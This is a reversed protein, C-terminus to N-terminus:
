RRSRTCPRCKASSTPWRRRGHASRDGAPDAAQPSRSPPAMADGAGRPGLVVVRRRAPVGARGASRRRHAFRRESRLWAADPGHRRRVRHHRVRDGPGRRRVWPTPAARALRPRDADDAGPLPRAVGRRARRALRGDPSRGSVTRACSARCSGSSRSQRRPLAWPATSVRHPWPTVSGTRGAADGRWLAGVSTMEHWLRQRRFRSPLRRDDPSTSPSRWSGAAPRRVACRQSRSAPRGHSADGAVAPRHVGKSGLEVRPPLAPREFPSRAPRAPRRWRRHALPRGRWDPPARREGM